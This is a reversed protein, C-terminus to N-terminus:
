QSCSRGLGKAVILDCPSLKLSLLATPPLLINGGASGPINVERGHLQVPHQPRAPTGGDWDPFAPKLSPRRASSLARHKWGGPHPESHQFGLDLLVKLFAGTQPVCPFSLGSLPPALGQNSVSMARRKRGEKGQM